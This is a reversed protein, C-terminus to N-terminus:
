GYVPRWDEKLSIRQRTPPDLRPVDKKLVETHYLIQLGAM